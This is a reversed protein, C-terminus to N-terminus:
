LIGGGSGAAGPVASDAEVCVAGCEAAGAGAGGGGGRVCQDGAGGGQAVAYETAGDSVDFVFGGAADGGTGHILIQNQLPKSNWSLQCQGLGDRCQVLARWEDFALNPEGGLSLWTATVDEIPGLLAEFLYLAHVGLDRFPYGASRYQPPLPGPGFPPYVSSRLIDVSTVRGIKGAKVATLAGRIHPDFLLSHNVCISLGAEAAQRELRRCDRVDTALPKEVLVHCGCALAEGALKAHSDPPTLIHLVEAGAARLEALSGYARTGFKAAAAGARGADVDCVGVLEVHPLRRLAAAHYESIYGAGVLGTKLRKSM